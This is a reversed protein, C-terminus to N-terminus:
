PILDLPTAPQGEREGYILGKAVGTPSRDKGGTLYRGTRNIQSSGIPTLTLIGAAGLIDWVRQDNDEDVAKEIHKWLREAAAFAPASRVNFARRKGTVLRNAAEEAPGGIFPFLMFPAAMMKRLIWDPWDEDEEKGRGSVFESLLQAAAFMALIRGAAVAMSPVLALKEGLGDANGLAVLAPDLTARVQNHLKNFYGYFAILQALGRKDRLFSPKRAQDQSPMSAALADDAFAVAGQETAGPASLAQSYAADWIVTSAWRDTMDMFVWAAEQAQHIMRRTPSRRGREGIEDMQARVERRINEARHRVEGSKEFARRYMAPTFMGRMADLAYRLKIRGSFAAVLPNTIDGLATPISWALSSMMLAQKALGLGFYSDSLHRPIADAAASSASALWGGDGETLNDYDKAGVRHRMTEAFEPNTLLGRAGRVFRDFAVYHIVSMIHGPVVGWDLRIVDEYKQARPKTFGKAVSIAGAKQHYLKELNERAQNAGVRSAVPDYRAPFYGGSVRGHPTEIPLAEIKNPPLGASEQYTRAVEPYLEQDLLKWVSEIFGWEEKTMNRNLWDLVERESWKYGGLLRDRNSRNGMNLAVMWMWQRDTTPQRDVDDPWPVGKLDELQEYRRRQM